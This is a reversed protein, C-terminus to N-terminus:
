GFITMNVGMDPSVGMDHPLSVVAKPCISEVISQLAELPNEVHQERGAEFLDRSVNQSRLPPVDQM